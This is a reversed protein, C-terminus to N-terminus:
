RDETGEEVTWVARFLDEGHKLLDPLSIDFEAGDRLHRPIAKESGIQAAAVWPWLMAIMLLNMRM